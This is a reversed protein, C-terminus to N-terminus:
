SLGPSLCQQDSCSHQERRGRSLGWTQGLIGQAWAQPRHWGRYDWRGKGVCGLAPLGSQGPWPSQLPRRGGRQCRLGVERCIPTDLCATLLLCQLHGTRVPAGILLCLHRPPSAWWVPCGPAIVSHRPAPFAQEEPGPQLRVAAWVAGRGAVKGQGIGTAKVPKKSSHKGWLDDWELGM